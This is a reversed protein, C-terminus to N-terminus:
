KVILTAKMMPHLSCVYPYIGKKLPIFEWTKTSGIAPSRIKGDSSAINHPFPDKNEWVIREGVKVELVDPSFKMADITVRHVKNEAWVELSIFLFPLLLLASKITNRMIRFNM